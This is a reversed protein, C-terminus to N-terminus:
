NNEIEVTQEQVYVIYHHTSDGQTLVTLAELGEAEQVVVVQEEAEQVVVVQEEAEEVVVMEQEEAMQEMVTVAGPAMAVMPTVAHHLDSNLETIQQLIKVAESDQLTETLQMQEEVPVFQTEVAETEEFSIQLLNLRHESKLHRNLDRKNGHVSDCVPCKLGTDELTQTEEAATEKSNPFKEDPHTKKFHRKLPGVSSCSYFCLTCQFAQRGRAHQEMHRTLSPKLAASFDCESCKFQKGETSHGRSHTKLSVESKFKKGCLDCLHTKESQHRNMHLRLNSKRVGAYDCMHCAYPKVGEHAWIHQQLDKSNKLFYIDCYPCKDPQKEMREKGELPVTGPHLKRIHQKLRHEPYITHCVPCPVTKTEEHFRRVHMQLKYKDPTTFGCDATPCPLLLDGHKHLLHRTLSSKTIASYDCQSCYQLHEKTHTRVHNNFHVKYVFLKGCFECELEGYVKRLQHLTEISLQTKQISALVQLFANEVSVESETNPQQTKDKGPSFIQTNPEKSVQSEQTEDTGPLEEPLNETKSQDCVSLNMRTPKVGELDIIAREEQVDAMNGESVIGIEKTELQISGDEIEHASRDDHPRGINSKNAIEDQRTRENVKYIISSAKTNTELVKAPDPIHDMERKSMDRQDKVNEQNEPEKFTVEENVAMDQQVKAMNGERMVKVNVSDNRSREDKLNEENGEYAIVDQKKFTKQDKAYGEEQISEIKGESMIVNQGTPEIQGRHSSTKLVMELDRVKEIIDSAKQIKAINGKHVIEDRRAKQNAKEEDNQTRNELVTEQEGILSEQHLNETNGKTEIEDRRRKQNAKEQDSLPIKERATELQNISTKEQLNDMGQRTKENDKELDSDLRVEQISGLEGISREDKTKEYQNEEMEDRRKKQNGRELDDASSGEEISAISEKTMNGQSVIEEAKERGSELREELISSLGSISREEQLNEMRGESVIEHFKELDSASRGDQINALSGETVVDEQSRPQNGWIGGGPQILQFSCDVSQSFAQDLDLEPHSQALHAKLRHCSVFVGRCTSCLYLFFHKRVHASLGSLKSAAFDCLLCGFPPQPVHVLLHRDREQRSKFCRKCTLCHFLLQRFGQRTRLRLLQYVKEVAPDKLDHKREMHKLLSKVDSYKAKCFGCHQKVKMHVREVHVKLHGSSICNFSCHECQFRDGTHKRIHVNLNAKIASAYNCHPCKFPKEQTHTRLHAVLSHRFKFIKNCFECTFVKLQNQLSSADRQQISYELIGKGVEAAKRGTLVAGPDPCVECTSKEQPPSQPSEQADATEGETPSDEEVPVLKSVDSWNGDETLLVKIVSKKNATTSTKDTQPGGGRHATKSARFPGGDGDGDEDDEMKLCIHKLIQRRNRFTRRCEKCDLTEEEVDREARREGAEMHTVSAADPKHRKNTSGKPRGRRRKSENIKDEPGPQQPEGPELPQLAIIFDENEPQQHLESCHTELQSRSPSFLNCVRCMFVAGKAREDM